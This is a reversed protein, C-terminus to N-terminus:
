QQIPKISSKRPTNPINKDTSKRSQFRPSITDNITEKSSRIEEEIMELEELELKIDVKEKEVQDSQL